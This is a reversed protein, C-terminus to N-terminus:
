PGVKTSLTSTNNAPNPDFTAESVSATNNVLVNGPTTVKVVFTITQTLGVAETNLACSITGKSGVPPASCTWPGPTMSVFYSGNPTPDTLLLQKGIYKGLNKVNVMYKLQRNTLKTTSQFVYLDTNDLATFSTSASNSTLDPDFTTSTASATNTITSGDAVGFNLTAQITLTATSSNTLASLNLSAGTGSWICTGLTSTCGTFTVGAPASDTLSVGRADYPGKNTVAVTYTLSDGVEIGTAPWYPSTSSASKTVALDARNHITFYATSSNNNTNPDTPSSASVSASNGVNLGDTVGSNLTTNITVTSSAGNTMSAYTVTVTGGSYTCQGTGTSETCSVFTLQTPLTDSVTVSNATNPGANNVALMYTVTDGPVATASSVSKVISLDTSPPPAEYAGIDSHPGQPRSVGRQDTALATSDDGAEVAPSTGYQIAMTPTDGSNPPNSTNLQLPGLQPDSTVVVGPCGGNSMILNGAGVKNVTGIVYCENASDTGNLGNNAIITNDLTFQLTSNDNDNMVIVGGKDSTAQNNSITADQITLSGNRSFIAGGADSGDGAYGDNGAHGHDLFNNYFTSNQVTVNGSDNFIAGGLAAGGGGGGGSGGHGGFTGGSGLSGVSLCGGGGGGFGGNGGNGAAGTVTDNTGCSGGGGGFASSGGNGGPISPTVTSDGAGGGGGGGGYAGNGGSASSLAQSIGAGGGGGGSCKGYHGSSQGDGGNGGCYLGGAGGAQSADTGGDFATGGGGGGGVDVTSGGNGRAGGGGGAGGGSPGGSGGAGNGYLGGGGGGAVNSDGDVPCNTTGGFSYLSGNGGVAGNNSFTSNVITLVPAAGAEPIKGIYIAGGAGMGGGGGCAGDGGKVNFGKIWVDQLTLNGDGVFTTGTLVGSTPMIKAWGVAFMRAHGQGTWQLITGNGQIAMFGFIIPTVTPGFPNHGDGDWFHDFTLTGNTYDAPNLVITSWDGNPATCGTSYTDDPETQDLAIAQGFESAYIAEQLSCHGSTIGETDTDVVIQAASPPSLALSAVLMAALFFCRSFRAKWPICIRSAPTSIDAFSVSLLSVFKM